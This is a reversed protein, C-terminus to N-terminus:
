SRSTAGTRLLHRAVAVLHADGAPRTATTVPPSEHLYRSPARVARARVNGEVKTLGPSSNGRLAFDATRAGSLM